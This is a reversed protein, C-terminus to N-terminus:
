TGFNRAILAIDIIDVRMDNNVDATSNWRPHNPYSGFAYAAEAIDLIDVDGDQDLDYTNLAYASVLLNSAVLSLAITLLAYRLRKGNM